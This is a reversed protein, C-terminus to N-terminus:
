QPSPLAQAIDVQFCGIYALLEEDSLASHDLAQTLQTRLRLLAKRRMSIKSSESKEEHRAHLAALNKAVRKGEALVDQPLDALRALELGYHNSEQPAVIKCHFTVGFDVGSSSTRQVSLHLNIVSPQRSLTTTLENFHGCISM